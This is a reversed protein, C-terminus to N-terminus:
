CAYAHDGTVIQSEGPSHLEAEDVGNNVYQNDETDGGGTFTGPDGFKHHESWAEAQTRGPPPSPYSCQYGTDPSKATRNPEEVKM